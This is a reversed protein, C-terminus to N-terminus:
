SGTFTPQIKTVLQPLDDIASRFSLGLSENDRYYNAWGSGKRLTWIQYRM